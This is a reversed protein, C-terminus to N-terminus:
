RRLLLGLGHRARLESRRNAPLLVNRALRDRALQGNNKCAEEDGAPSGCPLASLGLTDYPPSNDVAMGTIEGRSNIGEALILQFSGSTNVHSYANLDYMTGNEWLFAQCNFNNDCSQGVVQGADNIAYAYSSTDGPLTGLDTVVGNQWLFSHTPGDSSCATPSPTACTDSWGIVQGSNNIATAFAHELDGFAIPGCFCSGGVVQGEDNIASASGVTDGPFLPLARIKGYKPGSVVPEWDLVQTPGGAPSTCTPDHYADEAVGALEGRGNAVGFGLANNGGLTPLARMM